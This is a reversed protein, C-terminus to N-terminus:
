EHCLVGGDVCRVIETWMGPSDYEARAPGELFELVQGRLHEFTLAAMRQRARDRLAEDCQASIIEKTAHGAAYLLYLDFVDRAQPESRDALARVKQIM